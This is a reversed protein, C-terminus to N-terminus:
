EKLYTTPSGIGKIEERKRTEKIGTFKNLGSYVHYTGKCSFVIVRSLKGKPSEYRIFKQNNKPKIKWLSSKM